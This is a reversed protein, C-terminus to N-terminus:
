SPGSSDGTIRLFPSNLELKAGYSLLPMIILHRIKSREGSDTWNPEIISYSHM